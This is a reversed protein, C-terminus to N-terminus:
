PHIVRSRSSSARFIVLLLEVDKQCLILLFGGYAERFNTNITITNAHYLFVPIVKITSVGNVNIDLAKLDIYLIHNM